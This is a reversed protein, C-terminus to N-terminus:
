LTHLHEEPADSFQTALQRFMGLSWNQVVDAMHHATDSVKMTTTELLYSGEELLEGMLQDAFPNMIVPDAQELRLALVKQREKNREKDGLTDPLENFVLATGEALVPEFADNTIQKVLGDYLSYNLTWYIIQTLMFFGIPIGLAYLTAPTMCAAIIGAVIGLSPLSACYIAGYKLKLQQNKAITRPYNKTNLEEENVQASLFLLAENVTKVEHDDLIMDGVGALVFQYSPENLSEHLFINMNTTSTSLLNLAFIEHNFRNLFARLTEKQLDDTTKEYAKEIKKYYDIAHRMLKIRQKKANEQADEKTNETFYTFLNMM